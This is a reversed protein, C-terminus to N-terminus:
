KGAMPVWLRAAGEDVSVPLPDGPQPARILLVDDREALAELAAEDLDLALGVWAVTYDIGRQELWARMAPDPQAAARVYVIHPATAPAGARAPMSVLLLAALLLAGACKVWNTYRM